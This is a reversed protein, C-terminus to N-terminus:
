FLEIVRISGGGVDSIAAYPIIESVDYLYADNPALKYRYIETTGANNKLGYLVTVQTTGTNRVLHGKRGPNTNLIAEETGATPLPFSTAKSSTIQEYAIIPNTLLPM